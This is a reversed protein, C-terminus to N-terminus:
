SQKIKGNLPLTITVKTGNGEKSDFIITGNYDKIIKSTISLGLGTGKGPDKTTFFPDTLRSINEESIGCGNDSIVICSDSGKISTEIRIKGLEKIAHIANTLVNLFVQHLRGQNGFVVMPEQCYDKQIEIIYKTENKLMVLCNDIISHINCESSPLDNARSYLNLSKVIEAARDVGTQVSDILPQLELFHEEDLRGLSERLGHIGGNIFNLPNNIEHAIGASLVGLSAMKESQVLKDQTNRLDNYAQQLQQHQHDLEINTSKLLENASELERTREHVLRELQTRYKELENQVTIVETIDTITGIYGKIDGDVIEPVADGLVWAVTGDSRLFRYEAVSKVRNGSDTNWKNSIKEVDEPHVAKLWGYGVAEDHSLGSIESWRPNVYTTYGDARTRFIGVPSMHALTQFQQQSVNLAKEAELKENLGRVATEITQKNIRFINFSVIGIFLLAISTDCAFEIIDQTSLGMKVRFYFLLSIMFVINLLVYTYIIWRHKNVVLPLITLGAMVFAITDLRRLALNNDIVVVSWVAALISILLLHASVSFRGNILFIFSLFVLTVLSAFLIGSLQLYRSSSGHGYYLYYTYFIIIAICALLGFLLYYIFKARQQLEFDKNEYKELLRPLKHDYSESIGKKLKEIVGKTKGIKMKLTNIYDSFM